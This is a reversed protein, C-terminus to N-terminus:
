IKNAKEKIHSKTWNRCSHTLYSPGLSSCHLLTNSEHNKRKQDGNRRFQLLLPVKQGYATSYLALLSRRQKM